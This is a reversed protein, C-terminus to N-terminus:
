IIGDTIKDILYIAEEFSNMCKKNNDINKLFYKVEEKYSNDDPKVDYKNEDFKFYRTYNDQLYDVHVKAKTGNLFEINADATDETDVTVDSTKDVVVEINKINGFWHYLYDFEHIVDLLVGGGMSKNASYLELHKGDNHWKKLDYGFFVEIEKINSNPRNFMITPHFRLNCGIMNILNKEKILIRIKNIIDLDKKAYLPTECFFPIENEVLKLIHELHLNTPSCVFGFDFNNKQLILDINDIEDIDVTRINCGLEILNKTHRKGISGYGIVIGNM